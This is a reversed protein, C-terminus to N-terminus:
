DNKDDGDINNVMTELIDQLAQMDPEGAATGLMKVAQKKRADKARKFASEVKDLVGMREALEHFEDPRVSFCEAIDDYDTFTHVGRALVITLAALTGIVSGHASLEMQKAIAALKNFSTKIATEFNAATYVCFGYAWYYAADYDRITGSLKPCFHKLEDLIVVDVHKDECFRVISVVMILKTGVDIKEDLLILRFLDEWERSHCLTAIVLELLHEDRDPAATLLWVVDEYLQKDELSAAIFATMDDLSAAVASRINNLRREEEDTPQTIREPLYQPQGSKITRYFYRADTDFPYCNKVCRAAALAEKANGDNYSVAAFTLMGERHLKAYDNLRAFYKNSLADNDTLRYMKAVHFVDDPDFLKMAEIRESMEEEFEYRKLFHCSVMVRTIVALDDPREALCERGVRVCEAYHGFLYELLMTDRLALYHREHGKSFVSLLGKGMEYSDSEAFRHAWCQKMEPDRILPALDYDEIYNEEDLLEQYPHDHEDIAGVAIGRRIYSAATVYNEQAMYSEAIGFYPESCLPDLTIERLYYKRADAYNGGEYYCTAIGEIVEPDNAGGGEFAAFFMDLAQPLEHVDKADLRRQGSRLYKKYGTDFQLIQGM